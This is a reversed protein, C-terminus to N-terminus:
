RFGIWLELHTPRIASDRSFRAPVAPLSSNAIDDRLAEAAAYNSSAGYKVLSPTFTDAKEIGYVVWGKRQLVSRIAAALESSGTYQLDVVYNGREVSTVNAPPAPPAYTTWFLVASAVFLAGFVGVKLRVDSKSFWSFALGTFVLVLCVAFALPSRSGADIADKLQQLQPLM